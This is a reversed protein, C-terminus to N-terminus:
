PHTDSHQILVEIEMLSDSEHGLFKLGLRNRQKNKQALEDPNRFSKALCCHGHGNDPPLYYEQVRYLANYILMCISPHNYFLTQLIDSTSQTSLRVFGSHISIARSAAVQSTQFPSSKAAEHKYSRNALEAASRLM